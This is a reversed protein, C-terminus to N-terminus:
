RVPDVYWGTWVRKWRRFLAIFLPNTWVIIKWVPWKDFRRCSPQVRPERVLSVKRGTSRALRNLTWYFDVDEGMWVSEDYGGTQEFISRRCFQAAGQVIGTVRGFLRWAGLYLRVGLRQPRYDIDVGGGICQPDGMAHHITQLLDRPVFVDSDIFVLVDGAAHRAGTNRARSIGQVPEFVVKAGSARAIDATGDVSNNDVVITEVCANSGTALREAAARISDLTAALYAEENFAPIIVTLRLRSDM